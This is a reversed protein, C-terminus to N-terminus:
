SLPIRSEPFNRVYESHLCISSFFFRYSSSFFQEVVFVLGGVLLAMLLLGLTLTFVLALDSDMSIIPMLLFGLTLTFVLALDGDMSITPM